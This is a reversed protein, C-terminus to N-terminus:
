KDGKDLNDLESLVLNYRKLTLKYGDLSCCLAFIVNLVEEKSHILNRLLAIVLFDSFWNTPKVAKLEEALFLLASNSVKLEEYTKDMAKSRRM